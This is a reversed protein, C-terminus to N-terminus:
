SLTISASTIGEATVAITNPGNAHTYTIQARGNYLQVLRSGSSTGLNDHLIGPGALSFRVAIRSDLCLNGAADHLTAEVTNTTAALSLQALKLQTPKSWAATQYSFNIEDSVAKGTSSTAVVRLHNKGTAFPTEWRLGACPFDQSNRKKVDLSKGNLFLEATPCNSYVRVTRKEGAAGWRVPWTHGYVRVMPASKEDTWYSQFVFYSEKQTLDRELVGKQNIRPVPNEARLPTTFDKFIWQASGTFWDLPEQTKLYWDFLDCAYTESWDGDRSIRPPGGTDRYALGTEATGQGTAIHPIHAYPDEAHRRAHSDAGWEIHILHKVKPRWTELSKQYETYLGSYWGAWISPSYVDPIDAAFDCRRFGTVRTPDLSHALDHMEQMFKRIAAKDVSPYENPWDDENGLGWILISPHNYHQHILNTFAQKTQTQWQADGIGERCWTSEEWVLIGLEDCLDLVFKTQQYHALRVLNVGMKKMLEFEARILDEPQAAAFHAHDMHRQTGNILLREGNLKFPGHDIWETHKLGFRETITYHDSLKINVTYLAPSSPSWLQPNDIRIPYGGSTTPGEGAIPKQPKGKTIPTTRMGKPDILEVEINGDFPVGAPNYFFIAVEVRVPEDPMMSPVLQVREISVAPAHVLHVKRYLGGYLSFDSLDSPSRELDRSNDTLVTLAVTNAPQKIAGAISAAKLADTIDYVFEDYGGVHTGILQSNICVTTTQGAGEFHLLVRGNNAPLTNPIETRYWGQGRYYPMDPDCADYHNFCHPLTVKEWAAIEDGHWAEWPGALSDRYHDWADLLKVSTDDNSKAAAQLFPRVISASLPHALAATAAASKLFHRRTPMPLFLERNPPIM